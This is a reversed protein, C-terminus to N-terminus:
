FTLISNPQTIDDLGVIPELETSGESRFCFWEFTPNRCWLEYLSTSVMRLSTYRPVFESRADESGKRQSNFKGMGVKLVCHVSAGKTLPTERIQSVVYAHM